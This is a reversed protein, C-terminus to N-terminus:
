TARFLSEFRVRKEPTDIHEEAYAKRAKPCSFMLDKMFNQLDLMFIKTNLANLAMLVEREDKTGWLLLHSDLRNNKTTWESVIRMNISITETASELLTQTRELFDEKIHSLSEEIAKWRPDSTPIGQKTYDLELHVLDNLCVNNSYGELKYKKEMTKTTANREGHFFNNIIRRVDLCDRMVEADMAGPVGDIWSIAPDTLQTFKQAKLFWTTQLALVFFLLVVRRKKV